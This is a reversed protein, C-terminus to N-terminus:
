GKLANRFVKRYTVYEFFAMLPVMAAGIIPVLQLLILVLMVLRILWRTLCGSMFSLYRRFPGVLNVRYYIIGPILGVVPVLSMLFSIGLVHMLRGEIHAEYGRAFEPDALPQKGCAACTQRPTRETLRSACNPCRKKEALEFPHTSLNKAPTTKSQGLFSVACIEPNAEGCNPCACASRYMRGEHKCNPCSVKTQDERYDLVKQLLFLFGGVLAVLVLMVVPYLILLLVGAATWLDELWAIIGQLGLEDDEDAELLFEMVTKRLACLFYVGAGVMLAVIYNGFGAKHMTEVLGADATSLVGLSVLTAMGPKLYEDFENMAARIQPEKTAIIELISLIGLVAITINHTFWTPATGVIEFIDSNKLFSYDQGYRLLVATAFAPIFARSPFVGMSGLLHIFAQVGM